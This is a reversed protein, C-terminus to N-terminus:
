RAFLGRWDASAALTAQARGLMEVRPTSGGLPLQAVGILRRVVEVGALDRLTEANLPHGYAGLFAEAEAVSRGALALHGVAIGADVEPVGHFCFEPDIVRVGAVTRLWSGPYFDGHLLVADGGTPALYIAKGRHFASRVGADRRLRDAAATLGAALDDLDMGFRAVGDLPVEFLHEANLERMAGNDRLGPEARGRTAAHLRGLWGGLAELEGGRFGEGAYVITLDSAEGLDELLLLREAEAFGRVTPLFSSVSARDASDLAAVEAYFGHEAVIREAPAPISPYKEVHGRSQKLIVSRSGGEGGAIRLRLTLNMNGEGAPAVSAVAESDALWGHRRLADAVGPADAESLRPSPDGSM